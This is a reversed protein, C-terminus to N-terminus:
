WVSLVEDMDRLREQPTGLQDAWPIFCPSIGADAWNEPVVHTHLKPEVVPDEQVTPAEMYAFLINENIGIIQYKDGGFAREEQLAYHYFCYNQIHDPKLVGIKGLHKEVPAKRRWHELGAPANFHFIDILPVWKRPVAEGPWTELARSAGPLLEIPDMQCDVTEFYVFVHQEWTYLSLGLLKGSDIEQRATVADAAAASRFAELNKADVAARYLNRYIREM